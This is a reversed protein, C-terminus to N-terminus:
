CHSTVTGASLAISAISIGVCAPSSPTAPAEGLADAGYEEATTYALYGAMLQENVEYRWTDAATTRFGRFWIQYRTAQLLFPVTRGPSRGALLLQFKAM